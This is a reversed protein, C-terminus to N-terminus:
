WPSAQKSESIKKGTRIRNARESLLLKLAAPKTSPEPAAAFIAAAAKLTKAGCTKAYEEVKAEYAKQSNVLGDLTTSIESVLASSHPRLKSRGTTGSARRPKRKPTATIHSILEDLKSGSFGDSAKLIRVVANHMTAPKATETARSLKELARLFQKATPESDFM